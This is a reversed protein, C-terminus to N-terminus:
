GAPWSRPPSRTAGPARSPPTARHFRSRHHAYRVVVSEPHAPLYRAFDAASPVVVFGIQVEGPRLRGGLAQGLLDSAQEFEVPYEQRDGLEFAIDSAIFFADRGVSSDAAM